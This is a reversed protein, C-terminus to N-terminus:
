LYVTKKHFNYWKNTKKGRHCVTHLYWEGSVTPTCKVSTKCSTLVSHIATIYHTDAGCKIQSRQHTM